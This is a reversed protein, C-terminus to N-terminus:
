IEDTSYSPLEIHEGHFEIADLVLMYAEQEHEQIIKSLAPIQQRKVTLFILDREGLRDFRDCHVIAGPTCLKENIAPLLEAANDCSIHVAKANPKGSIILDVMQGAVFVGLVGYLGTEIHRFAVVSAVIILSDLAFVVRGPEVHMRKALLWALIGWGGSSGGSKFMFGLGCGMLVGGFLANLMRDDSLSFDPFSNYLLDTLVATMLIIIITRFLFTGGLQRFGLLMLPVNVLAIAIGPTIGTLHNAIIAMGPAGGTAIHAPSLFLVIGCAMSACGLIMFLYDLFRKTKM